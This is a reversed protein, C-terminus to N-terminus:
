VYFGDMTNHYNIFFNDINFIDNNNITINNEKSYINEIEPIIKFLDINNNKM